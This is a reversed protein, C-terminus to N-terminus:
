RSRSFTYFARYQRYCDSQSRASEGGSSGCYYRGNGGSQSIAIVLTDKSIIPRAYRFESAIKAQAVIRAIDEFLLAGICGAHWATGCGLLLVRDIRRLENVSLKLEDFIASGTEECLRGQMAQRTTQPQEFIEKLMFHEFGNKSIMASQFGILEEQKEVKKGQANYIEIGSCQLHAIEDNQLYTVQLSKGGFSNADSSLYAARKRADFGLVLPSERSAAVIEDPHDIHIVAIALSGSLERVAKAVALRLSGRYHHSILQAIVESDTDSTFVVGKRELKTRIGMYNEIIGNHVVALTQKQDFQPHANEENPAGHTAWRTHAIAAELPFPRRAIAAKLSQIKGVRKCARIKGDIIGAIGSSDYGRYELLELGQLCMEVANSEKRCIYAHIGCMVDEYRM